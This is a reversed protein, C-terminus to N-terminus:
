KIRQLRIMKQNVAKFVPQASDTDENMSAPFTSNLSHENSKSRRNFCYNSPTKNNKSRKLRMLIKNNIRRNMTSKSRLKTPIFPPSGNIREKRIQRIKDRLTDLKQAEIERLYNTRNLSPTM